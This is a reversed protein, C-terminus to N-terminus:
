CASYSYPAFTNRDKRRNTPTFQDRIRHLWQSHRHNSFLSQQFTTAFRTHFTLHSLTSRVESILRFSSVVFSPAHCVDDVKSLELLGREERSNIGGTLRYTLRFTKCHCVDEFPMELPVASARHNTRTKRFSTHLPRRKNSKSKIKTRTIQIHFQADGDDAAFIIGRLYSSQEKLNETSALNRIHPLSADIPAVTCFCRYAATQIVIVSSPLMPAVQLQFRVACCFYPLRTSLLLLRLRLM